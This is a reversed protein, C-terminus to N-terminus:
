LFHGAYTDGLQIGDIEQQGHGDDQEGDSGGDDGKCRQLVVKGSVHVAFHPRLDHLIGEPGIGELLSQVLLVKVNDIYLINEFSFDHGVGHM